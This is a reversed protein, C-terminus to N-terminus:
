MQLSIILGGGTRGAGGGYLLQVPADVEDALLQHLLGGLRPHDALVLGILGGADLETLQEVVHLDHHDGLAVGQGVDVLM